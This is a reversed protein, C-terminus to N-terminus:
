LAAALAYLTGCGSGDDNAGPEQVHAVMVIREQPKAAGPIEAILSRSPGDYFTSRVHVTVKAAGSQLRERMRSAARWSAKFGFAKAAADYPVSGWQLVDQQDASSFQRSDAPRIYPAIATSIVGIAGRQKVAQQWLRGIDANGLVVAGRIARGEYASPSGGDGVDVLRAEVAGGETPFSNVCLSVRDKERSLLVEGSDAFAVTGVEYDWGRGRGRYEDVRTAVGAAELRRRIEDISANFGPNGAIRWYQDMFRVVDM